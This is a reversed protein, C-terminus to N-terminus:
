EASHTQRPKSNKFETFETTTNNRTAGKSRNAGGRKPRGGYSDGDSETDDSDSSTAWELEDSDRDDEGNDTNEDDDSQSAVRGKYKHARHQLTSPGNSMEDDSSDSGSDELDSEHLRRIILELRGIDDPATTGDDQGAYHTL